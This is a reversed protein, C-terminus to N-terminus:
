PCKLRPGPDLHPNHFVRGNADVSGLVISSKDGAPPGPMGSVSRRGNSRKRAPPWGPFVGHTFMNEHGSPDDTRQALPQSRRGNPQQEFAAPQADPHLFKVGVEINIWPGHARILVPFDIHQVIPRFGIQVQPVVFPERVTFQRSIGVAGCTPNIETDDVLLAPALVQALSHLHHGM